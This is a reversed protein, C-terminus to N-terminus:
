DKPIVIKSQLTQIVRAWAEAGDVKWSLSRDKRRGIKKVRWAQSTLDSYVKFNKYALPPTPKVPVGPFSPLKDINNKGAKQDSAPKKMVKRIQGAEVQKPKPIKEAKTKKGGSKKQSNANLLVSKIHASMAEIDKVPV